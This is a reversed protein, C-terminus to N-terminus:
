RWVEVQGGGALSVMSAFPVWLGPGVVHDKM